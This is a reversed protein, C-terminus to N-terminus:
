NPSSAKSLTDRWFFNDIFESVEWPKAFETKYRNTIAYRVRVKFTYETEEILIVTLLSEDEPEYHHLDIFHYGQPNFVYSGKYLLGAKTVFPQSFFETLEESLLTQNLLLKDEMNNSSLIPRDLLLTSHTFNLM